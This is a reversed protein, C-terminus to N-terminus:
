RPVVAASYFGFMDWNMAVRKSVAALMEDPQVDFPVGKGQFIHTNGRM